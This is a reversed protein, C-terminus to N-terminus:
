SQFSLAVADVDGSRGLRSLAPDGIEDLQGKRAAAESREFERCADPHCWLHQRESRRRFHRAAAPLVLVGAAM